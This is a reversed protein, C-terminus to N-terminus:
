RRAAARSAGESRQGHSADSPHKESGDRVSIVVSRVQARDLHGTQGAKKVTRLQKKEM